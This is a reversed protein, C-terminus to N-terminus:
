FTAEFGISLPTPTPVASSVSVRSRAYRTDALIDSVPHALMMIM